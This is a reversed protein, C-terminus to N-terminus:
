SSRTADRVAQSTGEAAQRVAKTAGEAQARVADVVTNGTVIIREAAVNEARLREAALATPALHLAAIQGIIRRNGEEPFPATLDGSRLGAEIHAIPIGAFVAALSARRHM